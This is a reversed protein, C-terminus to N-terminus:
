LLCTVMLCMSPFSLGESMNVFSCFSVRWKIVRRSIMMDLGNGEVFIGDLVIVVEILVCVFGCSYISRNIKIWIIPVEVFLMDFEVNWGIKRIMKFM